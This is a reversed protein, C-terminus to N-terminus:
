IEDLNMGMDKFMEDINEYVKSNGLKIDEETEKLLLAIREIELKPCVVYILM